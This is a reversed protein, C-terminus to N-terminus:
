RDRRVEELAACMRDADDELYYVGAAEGEGTAGRDEVRAVVVTMETFTYGTITFPASLPILERSITLRM